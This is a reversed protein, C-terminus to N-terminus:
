FYRNKLWYAYIPDSNIIKGDINCIIGRELLATKSRSASTASTIHHRHLVEATSIITEGALIAHLYCLQQTTLSSTISKFVLGMQDVITEHAQRIVERSCVVSASLWSVHALQQVYFPHNDVLEVIYGAIDNDLYKANDAFRERVYTVMESKKIKGLTMIEGYRYFMPTNKAFSEMFANGQGCVCYGVGKQSKWVERLTEVLQEPQQFTDVNQFDDVCVVLKLGTEAAIANPLNLIEEQNRRIDEWDFDVILSGVSDDSFSLRPRSGRFFRAAYDLVSQKDVCVARLISQALLEYFREENRVNSLSLYCFRLNKEKHRAEKAAHNVLSSKGWGQPAIVITNTLFVFNASLRSIEDKRGIFDQNEAIKSYDFVKSM